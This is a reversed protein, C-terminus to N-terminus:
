QIERLRSNNLSSDRLYGNNQNALLFFRLVTTHQPKVNLEINLKAKRISEPNSESTVQIERSFVTKCYHPWFDLCLSPFSEISEQIKLKQLLIDVPRKRRSHRRKEELGLNPFFSQEIGESKSSKDSGNKEFPLSSKM